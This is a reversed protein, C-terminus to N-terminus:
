TSVIASLSGTSPRPRSTCLSVASRYSWLYLRHNSKAGISWQYLGPYFPKKNEKKLASWSFITSIAITSQWSISYTNLVQHIKDKFWKLPIKLRSPIFLLKNEMKPLQPRLLLVRHGLLWPLSPVISSLWKWIFPWLSPNLDLRTCCLLCYWIFTSSLLKWKFPWM